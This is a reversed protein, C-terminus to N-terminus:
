STVDEEDAFAEAFEGRADSAAAAVLAEGGDSGVSEVVDATSSTAEEGAAILSSATGVGWGEEGASARLMSCCVTLATAESFFSCPRRVCDGNRSDDTGTGVVSTVSCCGAAELFRGAGDFVLFPVAVVIFFAGAEFFRFVSGLLDTVGEERADFPGVAPLPALRFPM